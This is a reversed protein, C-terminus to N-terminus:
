YVSNIDFAESGAAFILVFLTFESITDDQQIVLRGVSHLILQIGHLLSTSLM